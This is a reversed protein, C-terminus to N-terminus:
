RLHMQKGYWRKSLLGGCRTLISYGLPSRQRIQVRYCAPLLVSISRTIIVYHPWTADSIEAIELLLFPVRVNARRVAFNPFSTLVHDYWTPIIRIKNSGGLPGLFFNPWSPWGLHLRSQKCLRVSPTSSTCRVSDV